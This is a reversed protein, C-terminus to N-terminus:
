VSADARTAWPSDDTRGDPTRGLVACLHYFDVPKPVYEDFGAGESREFEGPEIRSTLAVTKRWTQRKKAEAVLDLGSGDSLNIDSVLMDFRLFGLLCLAEELNKATFVRDGCNTFLSSLM